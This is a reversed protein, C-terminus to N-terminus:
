AGLSARAARVTALAPRNKKMFLRLHRFTHPADLASALLASWDPAAEIDILFGCLLDTAIERTTPPFLRNNLSAAVTELFNALDHFSQRRKDDDGANLLERVLNRQERNIEILTTADASKRGGHIQVAVAAVTASTAAAGITTAIAGIWQSWLGSMAIEELTV